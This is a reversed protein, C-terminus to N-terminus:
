GSVLAHAKVKEFVVEFVQEVNMHTTDITIADDAAKLPAAKRSRDRTDRYTLEDIVQALSASIGKDKLQLHRRKARMDISADLYIKVFADSFVVTGMDRGDTVLGPLQAFARQRELLAARVKPFQAIISASDGCEQSRILDTVNEGELITLSSKLNPSSKFQVDLHAALVELAAENTLSVAHHKAAIALVRYLAGSDLLNWGLKQALLQCLTGKGTGSPGDITLVPVINSM